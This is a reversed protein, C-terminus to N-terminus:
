APKGLNLLYAMVGPNDNIVQLLGGSQITVIYEELDEADEPRPFHNIGRSSWVAHTIEHLLTERLSDESRGESCRLLIRSSEHITVGGWNDDQRQAYWADDDLWEITLTNWGVKVSTPRPVKRTQGSM